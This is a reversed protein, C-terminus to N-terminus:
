KFKIYTTQNNLIEHGSFELTRIVRDGRFCDFKVNDTNNIPRTWYYYVSPTKIETNIHITNNIYGKISIDEAVGDYRFLYCVSNDTDAVRLLDLYILINNLGPINVNGNGSIGVWPSTFCDRPRTNESRFLM